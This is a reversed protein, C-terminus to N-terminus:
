GGRLREAVIDSIYGGVRGRDATFLIKGLMPAEHTVDWLRFEIKIRGNTESMVRGIVLYELNLAQLKVFRPSGGIDPKGIADLVATPNLSQFGDRELTTGLSRMIDNSIEIEEDKATNSIFISAVKSASKQAFLLQETAAFIGGTILLALAAKRSYTTWM